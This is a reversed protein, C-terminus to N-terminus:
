RKKIQDKILNTLEELENEAANDASPESDSGSMQSQMSSEEMSDEKFLETKAEIQTKTFRAEMQAFSPLSSMTKNPQAKSFAQVSEYKKPLNILDENQGKSSKSKEYKTGIDREKVTDRVNYTSRFM